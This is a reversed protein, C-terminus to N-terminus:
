PSNGINRTQVDDRDVDLNECTNFMMDRRNNIHIFSHLVCCASVVLRQRYQKYNAMCSLIPFCTKLVGFAREIVMRLSFHKYNFLKKGSALQRSSRWFKQAHYRTAKHSPLFSAGIPYGSDVLYYSDILIVYRFWYYYGVIILMVKYLIYIIKDWM